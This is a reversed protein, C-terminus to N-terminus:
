SPLHVFTLFTPVGDVSRLAREVVFDLEPSVRLPVRDVRDLDDSSYDGSGPRVPHVPVRLAAIAIVSGAVVRVSHSAFEVVYSAGALTPPLPIPEDIGGCVVLIGQVDGVADLARALHAALEVAAERTADAGTLGTVSLGVSLLLFAAVTMAARTALDDM